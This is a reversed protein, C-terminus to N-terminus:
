VTGTLVVTLVGPNVTVAGTDDQTFTAAPVSLTTAGGAPLTFLNDEFTFDTVPAGNVAVSLDSLAIPFDDTLQLGTAPENRCREIARVGDNRRVHIDPEGSQHHYGHEEGKRVAFAARPIRHM